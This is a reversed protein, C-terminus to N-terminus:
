EIDDVGPVNSVIAMSSPLMKVGKCSSKFGAPAPPKNKCSPTGSLSASTALIVPGIPVSDVPIVPKILPSTVPIMVFSDLSTIISRDNRLADVRDAFDFIDQVPDLGQSGSYFSEPRGAHAGTDQVIDGHPSLALKKSALYRSRTPPSLSTRSIRPM